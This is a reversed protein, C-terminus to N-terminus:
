YKIVEPNATMSLRTNPKSSTIRMDRINMRKLHTQILTLPPLMNDEKRGPRVIEQMTDMNTVDSASSRQYIKERIMVQLQHLRRMKSHKNSTEKSYEDKIQIFHLLMTTM